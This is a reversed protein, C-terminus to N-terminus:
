GGMCAVYGTSTTRRSKIEWITNPSTYVFEEREKQEGTEEKKKPGLIRRLLRNEYVRLRIMRM